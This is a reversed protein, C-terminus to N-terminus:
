LSSMGFKDRLISIMKEIRRIKTEEKKAEKIWLIYEKKHSYSMNNFSELLGANELANKIYYPIEINKIKTQNIKLGKTNNEISQLLYEKIIEANIQSVDSFKIHRNHLNEPNSLLVSYTDNILAGQFFVLTVHEKFAWIGCLMGNCYYNPHNWKWDETINPSVSLIIERLKECIAKSWQPLSDIYNNVLKTSEPHVRSTAM